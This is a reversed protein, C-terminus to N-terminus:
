GQQIGPVRQQQEPTMVVPVLETAAAGGGGMQRFLLYAGALAVVGLIVYFPLLPNRRPQPAPRAM